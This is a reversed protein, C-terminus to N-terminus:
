SGNDVVVVEGSIRERRMSATAKRVCTAITEAEDLCPIVVSVDLTEPRARTAEPARTITAMRPRVPPARPKLCAAAHSSAARGASDYGLARLRRLPDHPGRGRAGRGM